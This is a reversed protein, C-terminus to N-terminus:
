ALSWGVAPSLEFLERLCYLYLGTLCLARCLFTRPLVTGFAPFAGCIYTDVALILVVLWLTSPTHLRQDSPAVHFGCM